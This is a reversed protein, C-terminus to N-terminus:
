EDDIHICVCFFITIKLTLEIKTDEEIHDQKQQAVTISM